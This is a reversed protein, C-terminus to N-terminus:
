REQRRDEVNEFARRLESLGFPKSLFRRAGLADGGCTVAEEGYGSMLIVPVDPRLERVADRTERGGQGGRITLDLLVVDFPQRADLATRFLHVADEGDRATESEHGLAGLMEAMLELIVPDDDMVLM